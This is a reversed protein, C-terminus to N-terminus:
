TTLFYHGEAPSDKAGSPSPSGLVAVASTARNTETWTRLKLAPSPTFTDLSGPDHMLRRGDDPSLQWLTFDVSPMNTTQFYLIPEASSSYVAASSYGPLALSVSPMPASTTFSFEHGGMAQGYRDTAGPLLTVTYATSSKLGLNVNIGNEGTSEANAVDEASFSSVRVKNELSAPDMPTAFNIHIGYRSANKDGDSPQTNAVSPAGIPTVTTFTANFDQQLVGDAASTLGKAVKLHYTTAPALDSPLFRYISTNLWEGTGHLAPEFTVVPDTRQASLTTLPAVSRSFQVFLQAALPVETDGDGPIVQQVTLQGTVTFKKTIATELGADPRAPVNVSYTSGRVFGPFDPQFLATRAGLWAYTGRTEPFVQFLAEPAREEPTKAFTVTVPGLRAVDDGVPLVTFAPPEVSSTSPTRGITQVLGALLGLILVTAVAPRFTRLWSLLTAANM